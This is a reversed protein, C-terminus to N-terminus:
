VLMKILEGPSLIKPKKIKRSQSLIHRRDLSVLINADIKRATAMLYLDDLDEFSGECKVIEVKTSPEVVEDVYKELFQTLQRKTSKVNGLHNRAEDISIESCFVEHKKKELLSLLKASGGKPSGLAALICSADILIKYRM